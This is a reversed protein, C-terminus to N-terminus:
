IKREYIKAEKIKYRLEYEELFLFVYPSDKTVVIFKPKKEYVVKQMEGLASKYFTIHYAVIYRGPPLKQSLIYIQASDTWLFVSDKSTTNALLFQSVEYDRLTNRDFFSRYQGVSKGGFVFEIYNQYYPFVKSYLNFKKGVILLVIVVLLLNIKIWRQDSVWTGLLLCFSPIM